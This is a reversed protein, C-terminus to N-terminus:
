FELKLAHRPGQPSLPRLEGLRISGGIASLGSGGHSGRVGDGYINVLPFNSLDTLTTGSGDTVTPPACRAFPQTQILTHGNPDLFVASNNGPGNEVYYNSPM